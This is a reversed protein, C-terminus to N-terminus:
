RLPLRSISHVPLSRGTSPLCRPSPIAIIQPAPERRTHDLRGGSTGRPSVLLQTTRNREISQIVPTILNLLNCFTFWMGGEDADM